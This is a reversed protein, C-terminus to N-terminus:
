VPPSSKPALRLLATASGPLVRARPEIPIRSPAEVRVAASSRQMAARERRQAWVVCLEHGHRAGTWATARLAAGDTGRSRRSASGNAVADAHIIEGHEPCTVHRVSMLHAFSAFQGALCLGAVAVAISRRAAGRRSFAAPLLASRM